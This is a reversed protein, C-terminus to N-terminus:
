KRKEQLAHVAKEYDRAEIKEVSEAGMFRLFRRENAGVERILGDIEAVQSESIYGVGTPQGGDLDPDCTTLGLAQILSQRRGTTWAGSTEQQASMRGSGEVPCTFSSAEHHGNIHKVICTVTASRDEVKSDWSFSLGLRHLVPRVIRAIDDLEAYQYHFRAGSKTNIDARTKKPIPPCEIQFQGMASFFEARAARESVREHLAVLKELAEVAIGSEVAKELMRTIDSQAPSVVLADEKM